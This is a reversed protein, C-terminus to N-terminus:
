VRGASALRCPIPGVPLTFWSIDETLLQATGAYFAAAAAAVGIGGGMKYVTLSGSFEGIMLFFLALDLLLFVLVLIFNLRLTALSFSSPSCVLHSASRLVSQSIEGVSVPLHLHYYVLCSFFNRGRQQAAWPSRRLCRFSRPWSIYICRLDVLLQRVRHSSSIFSPTLRPRIYRPSRCHILPFIIPDSQPSRSNSEFPAPTIVVHWFAISVVGASYTAM